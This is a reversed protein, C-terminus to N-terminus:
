RRDYDARTLSHSLLWEGEDNPPVATEFGWESGWRRGDKSRLAKRDPRFLVITWGDWRAKVGKNQLKEVYADANDINLTIM